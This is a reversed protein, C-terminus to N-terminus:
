SGGATPPDAKGCDFAHDALETEGLLAFVARYALCFLTEQRVLKGEIWLHADKNIMFSLSAHLSPQYASHTYTGYDEGNHGVAYLYPEVGPYTINILAYRELPLWM